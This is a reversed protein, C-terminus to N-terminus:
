PPSTGAGPAPPPRATTRGPRDAARRAARGPRRVRDRDAGPDAGLRRVVVSSALALAAATVGVVTAAVMPRAGWLQLAGGAVVGLALGLVLVLPLLLVFYLVSGGLYQDIGGIVALGGARAAVAATLALVVFLLVHASLARMPWRWLASMPSM